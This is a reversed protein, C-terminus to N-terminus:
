VLPSGRGEKPCPCLSAPVVGSPVVVWSRPHRSFPKILLKLHSLGSSSGLHAQGQRPGPTTEEADVSPGTCRRGRTVTEVLKGGERRFVEGM